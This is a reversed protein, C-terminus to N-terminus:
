SYAAENEYVMGQAKGVRQEKAEEDRAKIALEIPTIEKSYRSKLDILSKRIDPSLGRKSLREAANRLDNAYTQYLKAAKSGEEALAMKEYIGAKSELESLGQEQRAYAQQYEKYPQLYREYSLPQFKSTVVLNYNPM